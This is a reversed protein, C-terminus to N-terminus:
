DNKHVLINTVFGLKFGFKEWTRFAAINSSQTITTLYDVGQEKLIFLTESLLKILWGKQISNDIAALVLKSIKKGMIDAPKNSALFGFPKIGELNPIIVYDAFGMVANYAFKGIYDDAQSKDIQADAHVRDFNNRMKIAVERLYDADNRNALRVSFRESQQFEKVGKYYYNLRSEVLRFGCKNFAQTLFIDESPIDAFIYAKLKTIFKEKIQFIAYVLYEFNHEHYFVNVIKYNDFGFFDSDWQLKKILFFCIWNKVKIDIIELDGAKIESQIPKLVTKLTLEVSDIDRIFRYPSYYFLRKSDKRVLDEIDFIM